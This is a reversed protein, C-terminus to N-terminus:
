SEHFLLFEKIAKEILRKAAPRCGPFFSTGFAEKKAAKRWNGTIRGNHLIVPQFIGFTNYAYQTHSEKICDFRNKYSVLYEDFPPLFRCISKEDADIGTALGPSSIHTMMERGNYEETIIEKGLSAIGTRAERVGLASWWVFDELTAPGHSRFYRRTIEALAEERSLDVVDKIRECTLTYTHKGNREAGSCVMGEAEALSLCLKTDGEDAVVGNSNLQELVEQCTLQQGGLVKEIHPKYKRYDEETFGHQKAYPYWRALLNKVSLETMWKIDKGPIYHWTPRMVHTRLIQGTNLAEQVARLSPQQMRLGVAWKAARIEQAQMAGMWEVVQEPKEFRPTSINQSSMRIKLM